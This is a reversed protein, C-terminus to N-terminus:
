VSANSNHATYDTGDEGVFLSAPMASRHSIRWILNCFLRRYLHPLHQKLFHRFNIYPHIEGVSRKNSRRREELVKRQAVIGGDRKRGEEKVEYGM